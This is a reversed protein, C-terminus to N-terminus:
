QKKESDELVYRHPAFPTCVDVTPLIPGSLRARPSCFRTTQLANSDADIGGHILRNLNYERYPSPAPVVGILVVDIGM